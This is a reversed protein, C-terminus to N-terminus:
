RGSDRQSRVPPPSRGSGARSACTPGAFGFLSAWRASSPEAPPTYCLESHLRFGQTKHRRTYRTAFPKGSRRDSGM